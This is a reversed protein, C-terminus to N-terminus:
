TLPLGCMVLQNSRIIVIKNKKKKISERILPLILDIVMTWPAMDRDHPPSQVITAM